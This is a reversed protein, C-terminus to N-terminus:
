ILSDCTCLRVDRSLSSKWNRATNSPGLRDRACIERNGAPKDRQEEMEPVLVQMPLMGAAAAAIAEAERGRELGTGVTLWLPVFPPLSTM